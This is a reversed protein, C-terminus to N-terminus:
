EMFGIDISERSPLPEERFHHLSGIVIEGSALLDFFGAQRFFHQQL